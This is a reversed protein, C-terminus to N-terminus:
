LKVILLTVLTIFIPYINNFSINKFKIIEYIHNLSCMFIFLLWVDSLSKYVEEDYDYNSYIFGVIGLSLTFFALELQFPSSKWGISNSIQKSFFLHGTASYFILPLIITNFTKNKFNNKINNDNYKFYVGVCIALLQILAFIYILKM